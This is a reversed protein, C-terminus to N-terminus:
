KWFDSGYCTLIEDFPAVRKTIEIHATQNRKDIKLKGNRDKQTAGHNIYYALKNGVSTTRDCRLYCDKKLMIYSEKETDFAPPKNGTFIDGGYYVKEGGKLAARTFLGLGAGRISSFDVYFKGDKEVSRKLKGDVIDFTQKFTQAKDKTTVNTFLAISPENSTNSGGSHILFPHMALIDGPSLVINDVAREAGHMTRINRMGKGHTCGIVRVFRNNYINVLMVYLALKDGIKTKQHMDFSLDRHLLQDDCGPETLIITIDTPQLEYSGEESLKKHIGASGRHLVRKNAEVMVYEVATKLLTKNVKDINKFKVLESLKLGLRRCKEHEHNHGIPSNTIRHFLCREGNPDKLYYNRYMHLVDKIIIAFCHRINRNTSESDVKTVAANDTLLTTISRDAKFDGIHETFKRKRGRGWLLQNHLFGRVTIDNNSRIIKAHAKNVSDLLAQYLRAQEEKPLENFMVWEKTHIEFPNRTVPADPDNTIVSHADATTVSACGAM